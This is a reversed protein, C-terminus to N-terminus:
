EAKVWREIGTGDCCLCKLNMSSLGLGLCEPCEEAEIPVGCVKCTFWFAAIPEKPKHAHPKTEQSM